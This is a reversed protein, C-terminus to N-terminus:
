CKTSSGASSGGGCLAAFNFQPPGGALGGVGNALVWYNGPVVILCRQLAAVDLVHLERGNCGESRVASGSGRM